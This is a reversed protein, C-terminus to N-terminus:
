KCNYTYTQKWNSETGRNNHKRAIEVPFGNENYTYTMTSREQNPDAATGMTFELPNHASLATLLPLPDYNDWAFSGLFKWGKVGAYPTSKDDYALGRIITIQDRPGTSWEYRLETVNDHDDYTVHLDWEYDNTVPNTHENVGTLRHKADYLFTYHWYNRQEVAGITISVDSWSPYGQFVDGPSYSTVLKADDRVITTGMSSIDTTSVVQGTVSFKQIRVPNGKSDYEYGWSANNGLLTTTEAILTCKAAPPPNIGGSSGGGKKCSYLILTSVALVLIKNM